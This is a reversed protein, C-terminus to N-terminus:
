DEALIAALEPAPQRPIMCRSFHGNMFRPM